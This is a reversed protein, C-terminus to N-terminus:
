QIKETIMYVPYCIEFVNNEIVTIVGITVMLNLHGKAILQISIDHMNRFQM